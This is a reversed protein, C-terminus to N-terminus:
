LHNQHGRDGLIFLEHLRKRALAPKGTILVSTTDNNRLQHITTHINQMADSDGFLM